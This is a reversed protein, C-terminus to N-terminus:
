PLEMNLQATNATEKFVQFSSTMSSNILYTFDIEKMENWNEHYIHGLFLYLFMRFHIGGPHGSTSASTFALFALSITVCAWFRSKSSPHDAALKCAYKVLYVSEGEKNHPKTSVNLQKERHVQENWKCKKKLLHLCAIWSYCSYRCHQWLNQLHDFFCFIM